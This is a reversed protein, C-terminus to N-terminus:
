ADEVPRAAVTPGDGLLPALAALVPAVWGHRTEEVVVLTADLQAAELRLVPDPTRTVVVATMSPNERKARLVLHLGNYAGLRLETILLDPPSLALRDRGRPFDDAVDVAVGLAGLAEVLVSRDRHDSSIM